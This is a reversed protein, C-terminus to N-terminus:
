LRGKLLAVCVSIPQSDYGDRLREQRKELVSTATAQTTRTEELPRKSATNPVNGPGSVFLLQNRFGALDASNSCGERMRLTANPRPRVYARM